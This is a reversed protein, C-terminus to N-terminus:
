RQHGPEGAPAGPRDRQADGAAHNGGDASVEAPVEAEHQLDPGPVRREHRGVGAHPSSACRRPGPEEGGAGPAPDHLARSARCLRSSCNTIGTTIPGDCIRLVGPAASWGAGSDRQGHDPSSLLHARRRSIVGAHGMSRRRRPLEVPHRRGPAYACNGDVATTSGHGPTAGERAPHRGSPCPPSCPRWPPRRQEGAPLSRVQRQDAEAEPRRIPYARDRRDPADLRPQRDDRHDRVGRIVRAPLEDHVRQGGARRPTRTLARSGSSSSGSSTAASPHQDWRPRQSLQGRGGGRPLRGRRRQGM